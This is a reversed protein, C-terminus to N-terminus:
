GDACKGGIRCGLTRDIGQDLVEGDGKPRMAYADIGDSRADDLGVHRAEGPGVRAAIEGEAHLRQFAMRLGIIDSTDHCEQCGVIGAPNSALDDMGIAAGFESNLLCRAAMQGEGNLSPCLDHFKGLGIARGVGPADSDQDGLLPEVDFEDGDVEAGLLLKGIGIARDIRAEDHRCQHEVVTRCDAFDRDDLAVEVVDIRLHRQEAGRWLVPCADAHPIAAGFRFTKGRDHFRDAVRDCAQLAPRNGAGMVVLLDRVQDIAASLTDGIEVGIEIRTQFRYGENRTIM